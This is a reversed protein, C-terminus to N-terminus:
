RFEVGFVLGGYGHGDVEGAAIGLEWRGVQQSGQVLWGAGPLWVVAARKDRLFGGADPAPYHRADDVRAGEGAWLSASPQGDHDTTLDLRLPVPPCQVVEAACPRGAVERPPLHVPAPTVIVEVTQTRGTGPPATPAPYEPDGGPLREATVTRDPHAIAPRYTASVQERGQIMEAWLFGVAGAALGYLTLGALVAVHDRTM